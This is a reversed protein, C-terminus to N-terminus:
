WYYRGTRCILILFAGQFIGSDEFKIIGSFEEEGENIRFDAAADFSINWKM